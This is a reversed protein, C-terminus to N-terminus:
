SKLLAEIQRILEADDPAVGPEFRAVVKGSGDLLFKTFNWKPDGGLPAPASCLDKYLPHQDDGKVSIKEFMPFSVGYTASCFQAIDQNSGPEQGGFNNAPFGLIVFGQDKKAKYLAELGSYQKTYGCKSAVNVILTAKAGFGALPKTSGDILNMTRDLPTAAQVTPTKPQSAPEPTAPQSAPRSVTPERGPERVPPPTNAQECGSLGLSAALSISLVSRAPASM